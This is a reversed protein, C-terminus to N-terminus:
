EALLGELTAREASTVSMGWYSKVRVWTAAYRFHYGGDRPPLWVDPGRAGKSRNASASVPILWDRRKVSRIGWGNSYQVRKEKTWAHAGANWAAKLPVFHDIDLKGPDTFEEGTFRCRWVGSAVRDGGEDLVFQKRFAWRILAEQREDQGDGDNDAWGHGFASRSYADDVTQDFEVTELAALRKLAAARIRQNRLGRKKDRKESM